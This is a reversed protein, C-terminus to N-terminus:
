HCGCSTVVMNPYKKLVVDKNDNYYLVSISSLNTPACCPKPVTKPNMLHVLTQVIAHNTANMNSNLPFSCEGHCYFASYGGPAIVWDQWQLKRFNVYLVRRQCIGKNSLHSNNKRNAGAKSNASRTVRSSRGQKHKMFEPYFRRSYSDDSDRQFFSVIFPHFEQPGNFGVFGAKYPSVEHNYFNEVSLELGYNNSPSESWSKGAKSIDFAQWGVDWSRLVRREILDLVQAPYIIQYLRLVFTSNQWYKSPTTRAKYLRFETATIKEGVPSVIKFHFKAHNHSLKPGKGYM